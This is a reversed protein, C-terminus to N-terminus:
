NKSHLATTNNRMKPKCVKRKAILTCNVIKWKAHFDIKCVYRNAHKNLNYKLPFNKNDTFCSSLFSVFEWFLVFKNELDSKSELSAEILTHNVISLHLIRLIRLCSFSCDCNWKHANEPQYILSILSNAIQVIGSFACNVLSFAAFRHVAYYSVSVYPEVFYLDLYMWWWWWCCLNMPITSTSPSSGLSTLCIM